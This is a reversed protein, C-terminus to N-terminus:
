EGRAKLSDTLGGYGKQAQCHSLRKENGAKRQIFGAFLTMIMALGYFAVM